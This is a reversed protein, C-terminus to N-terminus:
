HGRVSAASVNEPRALRQSNQVLVILDDVQNDFYAYELAADSLPGRPPVALHFGADRNFAVEPRLSPNGIVVGRTGFLEELNPERAGRGLNAL